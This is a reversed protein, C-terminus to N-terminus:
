AGMVAKFETSSGENFFGDLLIRLDDNSVQVAQLGVNALGSILNQIRKQIIEPRKERFLIFYETDTVNVEKSMFLNAKNIDEMIMKRINPSQVSNYLLQLQSLYVNIDVPRGSVILWFEYDITNYFSRLDFIINNQSNDDLIFINKPLVKVGTVNLGNELQIAGNIISKVPLWDEAYKTALSNNKQAMAQM